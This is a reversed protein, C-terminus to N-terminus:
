YYYVAKLGAEFGYKEMGKVHGADFLATGGIHGSVTLSPFLKYGAQVM